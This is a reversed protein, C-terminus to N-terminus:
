FNLIEHCQGLKLAKKLAEGVFQEAKFFASKLNGTKLYLAAIASSILCGTGRPKKNIRGREYTLIEGDETLLYDRVRHPDKSHGGKLLINKFGIERLRHLLGLPEDGGSQTLIKAEEWNPTILFIREAFTKYVLPDDVLPKGNKSYMVPDVVAEIEGFTSFFIKLFEGRALMGIKAVGFTFDEKLRLLQQKFLATDTVTYGFAGCSNQVTNATIVGASPVKFHSFVKTDLLIGAGGSPDLGEVVLASKMM